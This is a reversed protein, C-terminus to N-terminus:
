IGLRVGSYEQEEDSDKQPNEILSDPKIFDFSLKQMLLTQLEDLEKEGVEPEVSSESSAEVFNVGDAFMSAYLLEPEVKKSLFRALEKVSEVKLPPLESMSKIPNDDAFPSWGYKSLNHVTKGHLEAIKKAAFYLASDSIHEMTQMTQLNPIWNRVGGDPTQRWPSAEAQFHSYTQGKEKTSLFLVEPLIRGASIGKEEIRFAAFHSSFRPESGELQALERFLKGGDNIRFHGGLLFQDAAENKLGNNALVELMNLTRSLEEVTLANKVENMVKTKLENSVRMLDLKKGIETSFFIREEETPAAKGMTRINDKIKEYTKVPQGLAGLLMKLTSSTGKAAKTLLSAKKEPPTTM